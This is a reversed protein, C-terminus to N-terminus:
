KYCSLKLSTINNFKSYRNLLFKIYRPNNKYLCPKNLWRLIAIEFILQVNENNSLQYNSLDKINIKNLSKISKKINDM